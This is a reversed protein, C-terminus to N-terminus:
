LTDIKLGVVSAGAEVTDIVQSVNLGDPLKDLKAVNALFNRIDEQDKIVYGWGGDHNDTPEV